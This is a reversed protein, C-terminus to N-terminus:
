KRAQDIAALEQEWWDDPIAQQDALKYIIKRLSDNEVQLDCHPKNLTVRLHYIIESLLQDPYDKNFHELAHVAYDITRRDILIKDTM